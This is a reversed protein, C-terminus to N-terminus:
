THRKTYATDQEYKNPCFLWNNTHYKKNKMKNRMNLTYFYKADTLLYRINKPPYAEIESLIWCSIIEFTHMKKTKWWITNISMIAKLFEIHHSMQM